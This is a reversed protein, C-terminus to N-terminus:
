RAPREICEPSAIAFRDPVVGGENAVFRIRGLNRFLHRTSEQRRQGFLEAHGALMNEIRVFIRDVHHPALPAQRAIDIREVGLNGVRQFACTQAANELLSQIMQNARHHRDAAVIVATETGTRPEQAGLTARQQWAIRRHSEAQRQLRLGPNGLGVEREDDRDVRRLFKWLEGRM